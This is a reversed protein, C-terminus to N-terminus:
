NMLPRDERVGVVGTVVKIERVKVSHFGKSGFVMRLIRVSGILM